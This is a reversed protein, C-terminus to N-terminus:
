MIIIAYYPVIIGYLEPSITNFIKVKRYIAAQLAARSQMAATLNYKSHQQSVVARVLTTLFMSTALFYGKWTYMDGVNIFRILYRFIIHDSQEKCM